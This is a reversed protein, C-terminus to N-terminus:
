IGLLGSTVGTVRVYAALQFAATFGTMARPRNVFCLIGGFLQACEKHVLLPTVKLILLKFYFLTDNAESM